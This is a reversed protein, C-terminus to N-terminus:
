RVTSWAVVPAYTEREGQELDGRCCYRAKRSKLEGDPNRKRRFVWTGPLIKSTAEAIDVEEWTGKEVLALVEKVAAKQWDAEHGFDNMAQDYTLTDPDVMSAAHATPVFTIESANFNMVGTTGM